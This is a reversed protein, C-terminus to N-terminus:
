LEQEQVVQRKVQVAVEADATELLLKHSAVLQKITLNAVDLEARLRDIERDEKSQLRVLDEIRDRLVRREEREVAGDEAVEEFISQLRIKLKEIRQQQRNGREDLSDLRSALAAADKRIRRGQRWQLLWRLLKSM